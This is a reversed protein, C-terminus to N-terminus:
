LRHSVKKRTGFFKEITKANSEREGYEFVSLIPISAIQEFTAALHALAHVDQLALAQKGVSVKACSHLVQNHSILTDTDAGGSSHPTGLFLIGSLCDIVLRFRPDHM